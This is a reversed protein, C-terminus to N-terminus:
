EGPGPPRPPKGQLLVAPNREVELATRRLSGAIERM